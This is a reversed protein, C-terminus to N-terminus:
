GSCGSFIKNEKIGKVKTLKRKKHIEEKTGNRDFKRHRKYHVRRGQFSM